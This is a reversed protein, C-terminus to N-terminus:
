LVLKNRIKPFIGKKRSVHHYKISETGSSRGPVAPARPTGPSSPPDWPSWGVPGLCRPSGPLSASSGAAQGQRGRALCSFSFWLSCSSLHFSLILLFHRPGFLPPLPSLARSTDRTGAWSSGPTSSGGPQEPLTAGARLGYCM